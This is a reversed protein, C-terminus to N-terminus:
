PPGRERRADVRNAHALAHQRELEAAAQLEPEAIGAVQAQLKCDCPSDQAVGDRRGTSGAVEVDAERLPRHEGEVRLDFTSTWASAPQPVLKRTSLAPFGGYGGSPLLREVAGVTCELKLDLWM